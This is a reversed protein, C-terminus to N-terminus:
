SKKIKIVKKTDDNFYQEQLKKYEEDYGSEIQKGNEFIALVNKSFISALKEEVKLLSDLVMREEKYDNNEKAKILLYSYEEELLKIKKFIMQSFFTKSLKNNEEFTKKCQNYYDILAIDVEIKDGELSLIIKEIDILSISINMKENLTKYIFGSSYGNAYLKVVEKNDSSAKYKDFQIIKPDSIDGTQMSSIQSELIKIKEDRSKVVSNLKSVASKLFEIDTTKEEGIM